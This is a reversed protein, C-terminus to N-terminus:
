WTASAVKRREVTGMIWDWYGANREIVRDVDDELLLGEEVLSRAAAGVRALFDERGDYLAEISPRPDETRARDSETPPLPALTGRFDTLEEAGGPAGFRLNWPAYTAVPVRLEVNRVGAVENGLEDVQSVKTSFAEGLRPPQVDVIGQFWRPGYDARYAVHAAEPADLGPIAPWKLEALGVLTGSDLRPYASEPPEAGDVVWELLRVLLARYNGSFDLPNGRFVRSSEMRNENTPPFSRGVFHQGSALHYIRENRLPEVDASGDVTTHILSAGRGWYEYGTNVYFTKPAAAPDLHALLGDSSWQAPDFQTRSSFPFLDTPYFFASYRHADRSPQGFRHNFSGRGAGATIVMLGDYARRGREDRNFGQYLFHRLFRGTQSVGAALGHDVPFLAAPDYKAYAIVDRITALGLGVIAPDTAEYVLEYIKGAEFGSSMYLQTPDPVVEGAAERAFRWQERPVVRRPAERGGRVTLVNAPSEPAVAAYPLHNRHSLPLSATAEDVVWDSRVLGRIPDGNPQRARPVRLRLRGPDAPVDFQWGVWIVTLGQRMLLADGFAEASHPDLDGLTARNFYRPSFKGGRNSVEVLAVRRGRKPDVPKLVVLDAQAEVWGAGNRPALSLDVIADNMPNAPDFALDLHGQLLEYPGYRGFEKGALVADRSDVQVRVVEADSPSSGTLCLGLVWPLWSRM